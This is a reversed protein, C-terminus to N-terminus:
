RLRGLNESYQKIHDLIEELDFDEQDFAKKLPRSSKITHQFLEKSVVVRNRPFYSPMLMCNMLDFNLPNDLWGQEGMVVEFNTLHVRIFLSCSKARINQKKKNMGQCLGWTELPKVMDIMEQSFVHSYVPLQFYGQVATMGPIDLPLVSFGVSRVTFKAVDIDMALVNFLVCNAKFLSGPKLKSVNSFFKLGDKFILVENSSHDWDLDAFIFFDKAPDFERDDHLFYAVVAMLALHAFSVM